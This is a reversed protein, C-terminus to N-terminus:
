NEDDDPTAERFILRPTDVLFGQPSPILLLLADALRLANEISLECQLMADMRKDEPLVAWSGEGFAQDYAWQAYESTNMSGAGIWKFAFEAQEAFIRIIHPNIEV